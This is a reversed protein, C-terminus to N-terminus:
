GVYSVNVAEDSNREQDAVNIKKPMWQAKIAIAQRWIQGHKLDQQLILNRKKDM